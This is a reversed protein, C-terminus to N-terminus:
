KTMLIVIAVCDNRWSLQNHFTKILGHFMPPNKCFHNIQTNMLRDEAGHSRTDELVRPLGMEPHGYQNKEEKRSATRETFCFGLRSGLIHVLAHCGVLNSHSAANRPRSTSQLRHGFVTASGRPTNTQEIHRGTKSTDSEM